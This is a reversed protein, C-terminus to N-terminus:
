RIVVHATAVRHGQVLRLVYAGPALGSLDLRTMEAASAYNKSWVSRGDNSLVEAQLKGATAPLRLTFEGQSPNPYVELGAIGELHDVSVIVSVVVEVADSLCEVAQTEVTIDYFFYYYSLTTQPNGVSTGTVSALTGIEYPYNLESELGDRWLNPTTTVRLGYDTGAEVELNLEVISEGDPIMVTVEDLVAGGPAQVIVTREGAGDAIVKASRIVIDQYADFTLYYYTSEQFQGETSPDSAGGVATELGHNLISAAWYSQDENLVPTTFPNGEYLLDSTAADSFWQLNEMGGDLTATEGANVSVGEVTPAAPTEFVEVEVSASTLPETCDGDISVFYTGAETVLISQNLDDNSWNYSPASSSILTVSQGECLKLNGDVTITPLEPTYVIVSIPASQGLCGEATEMIVYYNGTSSVETSSGTSGNSWSYSTLGEPATLTLSEGPCLTTAGSAAIAPADFQCPGEILNHYVNIAPNTLETTLGSPWIVLASDIATAAGLGFHPHSSCTIGYSEGARVERVQDGWPGYVHVIAGVASANSVTGLLDFAVWNNENGDNIYLKDPNESDSSVYVSGHGAYVDIQGNRDYDGISFTNMRDPYSFPWDLETFTGDGHGHFYHNSGDGGSTLIDLFSDNDFDEMKGQLFFGSVDIGSSDTINTFVGDGDNELIMLSTSHNTVFCDMDGDNDVDGFDATWSQEYFVLGREAAEETWGGQGDNIWLQNVRRPDNEDSVFQRCKALYFDTDGDGDVDSWVTGYNGSHDTDPYDEHDYSTLPMLAPDYLLAGAGDNGFLLSLGDDHCAFIDLWGDMNIDAMNTAQMFFTESDLEIFEAGTEPDMNTILVLHAGDYNGGSFIDKKGDNDVDGICAGWQNSNSLPGYHVEELGGDMQYLVYVDEASDFVVIDDRGDGDMDTFGVTGGSHLESPLLGESLTFSQAQLTFSFVTFFAATLAAFPLQKKIM